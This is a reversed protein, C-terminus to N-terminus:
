QKRPKPEIAPHLHSVRITKAILRQNVQRALQEAIFDVEDDGLTKAIHDGFDKDITPGDHVECQLTFAHTDIQTATKPLELVLTKTM